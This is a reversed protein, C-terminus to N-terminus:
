YRLPETCLILLALTLLPDSWHGFFSPGMKEEKDIEGQWVVGKPERQRKGKRERVGEGEGRQRKGKQGEGEGVTIFSTKLKEGVPIAM